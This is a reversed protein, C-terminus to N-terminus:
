RAATATPATEHRRRAEEVLDTTVAALARVTGGHGLARALRDAM